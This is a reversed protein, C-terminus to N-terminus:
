TVIVDCALTMGHERVKHASERNSIYAFVIVVTLTDPLPVCQPFPPAGQGPPLCHDAHPGGWPAPSATLHGLLVRQGPQCPRRWLWRTMLVGTRRGRGWWSSIRAPRERQKNMEKFHELALQRGGRSGWLAGGGGRPLWVQTRPEQTPTVDSSCSLQKRCDQCSSRPEAAASEVATM